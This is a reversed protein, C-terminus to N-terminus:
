KELNQLHERVKQVLGLKTDNVVFDDCRYSCRLFPPPSPFEMLLHLCKWKLMVDLCKLPQLIQSHKPFPACM